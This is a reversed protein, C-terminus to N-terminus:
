RSHKRLLHEKYEREPNPHHGKVIGSLALVSPHIPRDGHKTRVYGPPPEETPPPALAEELRMREPAQGGPSEVRVWVTAQGDAEEIELRFRADPAADFRAALKAGIADDVTTELTLSM